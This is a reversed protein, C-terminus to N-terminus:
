FVVAPCITSFISPPNELFYKVFDHIDRPVTTLDKRFADEISNLCWLKLNELRSNWSFPKYPRLIGDEYLLVIHVAPVFTISMPRSMNRGFFIFIWRTSCKKDDQAKWLKAFILVIEVARWTDPVFIDVSTTHDFFFLFIDIYIVWKRSCKLHPHGSCRNRFTM